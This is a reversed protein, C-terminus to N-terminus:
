KFRQRRRRLGKRNCFVTLLRTQISPEIPLHFQGAVHLPAGEAVHASRVANLKAVAVPRCIELGGASVGVHVRERGSAPEGKANASAARCVTAAALGRLRTRNGTVCSPIHERHRRPGGAIPRSDEPLHHPLENGHDEDGVARSWKPSSVCRNATVHRRMPKDHSTRNLHHGVLHHGQAESRGFGRM